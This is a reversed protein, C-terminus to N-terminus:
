KRTISKVILLALLMLSVFTCVRGVIDGYTAFFTKDTSLNVKSELVDPVWWGSQGVVDGRQNIFGSIGTNACRAVDRRLEIARLRSYSFHQRYGPTDGWWGDNTIVALLQAGDDVYEKCLEPYISEYCIAVGARLTRDDKGRGRLEFSRAHPDPVCRGMLGGIMDDLPAFIAPYPTSEAGVVLKCKNRHDTYQAGDTIFATNYSLYWSGDRMQRALRSPPAATYFAEHTSAGFILNANPQSAVLSSFSKWTPAAAPNNMWIDSSFSEPILMLLLSDSDARTSLHKEFLGIVQANQEAQPTYHLKHWPDFNSQALVVDLTGADSREEYTAYRIESYVVPGLIVLVTAAIAAGRAKLNWRWWRGDSLSVLLSFLAINSLWVWLSGGLAGTIEYWQVLTVSRGFANGLILWPWSLQAHVLNFREWAIWTAALLIYPVIGSFRKRSVRFVAFIASAILTNFVAAFLGGGVTAKCVWWTTLLHFALFAAFYWWFFRKKGSLTAIREACLLPVFAILALGGFHPVLYPLSLLAVFLALLLALLRNQKMKM